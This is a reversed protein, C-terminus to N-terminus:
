ASDAPLRKNRPVQPAPVLLLARRLERVADPSEDAAVIAVPKVATSTGGQRDLGALAAVAGAAVVLAVAATLQLARLAPRRRSLVLALPVPRELHAGRLAAAVDAAGGAFSCCHFCRGLHADLLATELASLEGDVRLSAWWRARDCSQSIATM